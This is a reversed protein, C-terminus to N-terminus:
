MFSSSSPGWCLARPSAVQSQRGTLPVAMQPSDAARQQRGVLFAEIWNLLRGTVGYRQLKRLLHMHPVSDFAKSFDLFVADVTDGNEVMKSWDDLTSLLQTACSCKPRFGHQAEHLLDSQSLHSMLEDRIISEMVKCPIATLSIPRYNGAMQKDGKKFIPTVNAVNWEKPLQGSEMSESFINAWHHALSVATAALLVPHLGDPGPSSSPRLSALKQEVLHTPFDVTELAPLDRSDDPLDSITSTNGSVFTSSFFRNLISAKDADSTAVSGDADKLNRIASRTKMRSNAYRWFAKPTKKVSSALSQEFDKCQRRTMKCLKNRCMTFQAYSIADQSHKYLQWLARKKKKLKIAARNIYLNKKKSKPRATPVSEVVFKSLTTKLTNYQEELTMNEDDRWDALHLQENLKDFDARYFNLRLDQSEQRDSYCLM